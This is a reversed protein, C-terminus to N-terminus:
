CGKLFRLSQEVLIEQEEFRRMEESSIRGERALRELRWAIESIMM